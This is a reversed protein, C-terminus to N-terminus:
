IFLMEDSWDYDETTRQSYDLRYTNNEVDITITGYGGENNVWDGVTNVKSEIIDWAFDRILDEAKEDPMNIYEYSNKEIRFYIDDIDGSDGSGSFEISIQVIGLHKCNMLTLARELNKKNKDENQDEM